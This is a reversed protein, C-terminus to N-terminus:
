QKRNRNMPLDYHPSFIDSYVRRMDKITRIINKFSTSSGKGFERPFTQVGMEGVRYGKLMTRLTIEAGIFPSDSILTLDSYVSKKMLRLGTSIDRYNTRFVFRFLKNYVGSIFIRLTSYLKVYRFTIILDYYDRLKILKRLDQIDYEDDGDTFCIWEYTAHEFGSQIAAGYGLNKVHHIVRIFPFQLALQDALEGSKDPSGDNIIIIEFENAVEQLVSIAKLTLSEVTKEDNYVPYFVSINPKLLRDSM